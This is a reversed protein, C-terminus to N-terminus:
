RLHRPVTVVALRSTTNGSADIATYTITYTRGPSGADREARLLILADPTGFEAGRIDGTTSGDGGGPADDPESSTVSVLRVTAAAPDCADSVQWRIRVPVLRHNAPWLVSPDATLTLSPPTTDRVTVSTACTAVNGSADTATFTVATSGLPYTGSADPGGTRSSMFTVGGCADSAAALLVVQAGEPSACEEMAAPPCTLVPPTADHVDIV